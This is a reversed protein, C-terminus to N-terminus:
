SAAWDGGSEGCGRPDFRLSAIDRTALADALRAFLGPASGDLPAFWDPHGARDWGGDRGRPLWSPVLLVWPWRETRDDDPLALTAALGIEGARIRVNESRPMPGITREAGAMVWDSSTRAGGGCGTGKTGSGPASSGAEASTMTTPAPM